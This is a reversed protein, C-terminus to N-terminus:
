GLQWSTARSAGVCRRRAAGVAAGTVTRTTSAPVGLWTAAFLTIAGGTEARFGRMQMPRTIKSGTTHVIRWGGFLAGPRMAAQCAIVAWFPM